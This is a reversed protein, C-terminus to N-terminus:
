AQVAMRRRLMLGGIGVGLGMMVFSTPEPVVSFTQDVFSLSATSSDSGILLIDKTVNLTSYPGPPVFGLTTSQSGPPSTSNIQGTAVLTPGAFVSETVIASGAGGPPTITPNGDMHIDSIVAGASDTVTYGIRVDVPTATTNAFAGGIQIGQFGSGDTYATVTVATPLPPGTPPQYTFNSFTLDGSTLTAGSVLLDSLFEARATTIAPGGLGVLATLMSAFLIRSVRM